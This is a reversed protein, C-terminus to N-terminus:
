INWFNLFFHKQIACDRKIFQYRLLNVLLLRYLLFLISNKIEIERLTQTKKESELALSTLERVFELLAIIITGVGNRGGAWDTEM